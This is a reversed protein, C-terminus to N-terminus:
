RSLESLLLISETLSNSSNGRVTETGHKLMDQFTQLRDRIALGSEQRIKLQGMNLVLGQVLTGTGTTPLLNKTCTSQLQLRETPFNRNLSRFLNQAEQTHLGIDEEIVALRTGQAIAPDGRVEGVDEKVTFDGSLNTLRM